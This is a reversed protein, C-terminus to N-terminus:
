NGLSCMAPTPKSGLRRNVLEARQNETGSGLRDTYLARYPLGIRVTMLGLQSPMRKMM